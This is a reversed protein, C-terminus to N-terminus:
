NLLKKGVKNQAFKERLTKYQVVRESVFESSAVEIRRSPAHLSSAVNIRPYVGM